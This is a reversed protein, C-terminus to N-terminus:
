WRGDTKKGKLEKEFRNSVQYLTYVEKIAKKLTNWKGGKAVGSMREHYISPIEIPVSGVKILKCCIESEIISSYLEPKVFDLQEKRYVKIWNVDKLTISLFFRNFIKNGHSLLKRYLNYDTKSRYFSYFNSFDFPKVKLLEYVDFQGDGPVACVYQCTALRYGTRLAMGIGQNQAHRIYKIRDYKEVIQQTGDTSGDDVVIIEFTDFLQGAVETASQIVPGINERENYCFIIISISM